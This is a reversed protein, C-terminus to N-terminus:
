RKEISAAQGPQRARMAALWRYFDQKALPTEADLRVTLRKNASPKLESLFEDPTLEARALKDEERRTIPGLAAEATVTLIWCNLGVRPEFTLTAVATVLDYEAGDPIDYAKRDFEEEAVYEKWADVYYDQADRDDALQARVLGAAEFADLALIRSPMPFGRHVPQRRERKPIESMVPSGLEDLHFLGFAHEGDFDLVRLDDQEHLDQLAVDFHGGYREKALDWPLSYAIFKDIGKAQLKRVLGPDTFSGHSTAIVIPGSKTVLLAIRLRHKREDQNETKSTM